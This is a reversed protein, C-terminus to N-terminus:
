PLAESREMFKHVMVRLHEPLDATTEIVNVKAGTFKAAGSLHGELDVRDNVMM